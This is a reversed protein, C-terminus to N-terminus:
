EVKGPRRELRAEDAPLLGPMFNISTRKEVWDVPKIFQSFDANAGLKYRRNELVFAVCQVPQGARETVVIKYYHTPVAVRSKVWKLPVLGDAKTPDEEEPDYFMPGTIIYGRGAAAVLDRAKDELYRWIARNFDPGVQPSMNSMYFSEDTAQQSRNFDGAPALHGRDFGSRDYDRDESREAVPLAPDAQFKSKDRNGPGKLEAATFGEAVWLAQRYLSSHQLTYGARSVIRNRGDPPNDLRPEGMYCNKRAWAREQPTLGSQTETRDARYPSPVAVIPHSQCGALAACLALSLLRPWVSHKMPFISVPM